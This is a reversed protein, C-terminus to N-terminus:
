AAARIKSRVLNRTKEDLSTLNHKERGHQEANRLVEEPSSGQTQWNCGTFGVDSCRLSYNNKGGPVTTRGTEPNEPKNINAM